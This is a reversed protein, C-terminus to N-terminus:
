TSWRASSSRSMASIVWTLTVVVMITGSIIVFIIRNMKAVHKILFIAVILVLIAMGLYGLNKPPV